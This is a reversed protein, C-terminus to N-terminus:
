ITVWGPTWRRTPDLVNQGALNVVALTDSKPLGNTELEMWTMRKPGPMRSLCTVDYGKQGMLKALRKGIFGTGGGTIKMILYPITPVKIAYWYTAAQGVHLQSIPRKDFNTTTLRLIANHLNSTHITRVVSDSDPCWNYFILM